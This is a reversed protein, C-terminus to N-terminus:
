VYKEQLNIIDRKYIAKNQSLSNKEALCLEVCTIVWLDAFSSPFVNNINLKRRVNGILLCSGDTVNTM